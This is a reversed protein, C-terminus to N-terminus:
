WTGPRGTMRGEKRSVTRLRPGQPAGRHYLPDGRPEETNSLTEGHSSIKQGTWPAVAAAANGSSQLGHPPGPGGSPSPHHAGFHSWRSACTVRGSLMRDKHPGRASPSHYRSDPQERGYLSSVLMGLGLTLHLESSPAGQPLQARARPM